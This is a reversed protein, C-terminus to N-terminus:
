QTTSTDPEPPTEKKSWSRDSRDMPYVDPDFIVTYMHWIAIACTALIAEYFHLATAADSVSKPFHRMVVNDFWLVFGTTAM